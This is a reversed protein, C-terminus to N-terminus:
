ELMEQHIMDWQLDLVASTIEGNEVTIHAEHPTIVQTVMKGTRDGYGGHSSIFEYVFTYCNPCDVIDPYLTEKLELDSGDYKYTESEELIFKKALKQSNEEQGIVRFNESLDSVEVTYVGTFQKSMELLSYTKNEGPELRVSQKVIMDPTGAEDVINIIINESGATGGINKLTISIDVLEGVYVESPSVKLDIYEFKAPEAAEPERSLASLGAIGIIAILAITLVMTLKKM